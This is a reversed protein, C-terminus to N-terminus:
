SGSADPLDLADGASMCAHTLARIGYSQTLNRVATRPSVKCTEAHGYMAAFGLGTQMESKRRLHWLENIQGLV